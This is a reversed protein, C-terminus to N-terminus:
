RSTEADPAPSRPLRGLDGCTRHPDAQMGLACRGIGELSRIVGGGLNLLLWGGVSLPALLWALGIIFLVDPHSPDLRLTNRIDIGRVLPFFVLYTLAAYGMLAFWWWAMVEEKLVRADM